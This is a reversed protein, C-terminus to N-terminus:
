KIIDCRTMVRVLKMDHGKNDKLRKKYIENASGNYESEFEEILVGDKYIEYQGM